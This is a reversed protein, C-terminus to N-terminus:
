TIKSVTYVKAMNKEMSSHVPTDEQLSRLFQNGLLYVMKILNVMIVIFINLELNIGGSWNELWGLERRFVARSFTHLEMKKVM